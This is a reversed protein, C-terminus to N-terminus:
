VKKVYNINKYFFINYMWYVDVNITMMMTDNKLFHDFHFVFIRNHARKEM